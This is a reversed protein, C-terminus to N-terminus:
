NALGDEVPAPEQEPQAEEVPAAQEPQAEGALGDEVLSAQEPQAEGALGDEVPAAQEPQAEGALGDEVPATPEPQAEGALGDEAPTVPESEGALGDPEVVLAAPESAGEPQGSYQGSSKQKALVALSISTVFFVTALFATLKTFFSGGGQSGFVTQSAGSGFSAGMAAGKGQQLLIVGILAISALTNIVILFSQM